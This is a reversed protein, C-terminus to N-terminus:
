RFKKVWVLAEERSNFIKTPTPPKNINIFFNGIIRQALSTIVFAMAKRQEGYEKKASLERAERTISSHFGSELVVLYNENKSLRENTKRIDLVDEVEIEVNDKVVINIIRDEILECTAKNLEIKNM